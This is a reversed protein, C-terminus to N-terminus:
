LPIGLLLKSIFSIIPQMVLRVFDFGLLPAIMLLAILLYIGYQYGFSEWREALDPPLLFSLIEHGDLHPIPLLNFIMLGLNTFLFYILFMYPTPLINASVTQVPILNFRLPIAALIALCLNTLPGAISVLMLAAKGSRRIINPNVPVPKAWGFGVFILMLSGIPDLHALPNLTLRGAREATDDGFRKAVWAHAFEHFTLAVVLTIVASILMQPSSNFM